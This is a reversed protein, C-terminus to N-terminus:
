PSVMPTAIQNQNPPNEPMPGQYLNPQIPIQPYQSFQSNEQYPNPQPYAQSFQSNPVPMGQVPIIQSNNILSDSQIQIYKPSPGYENEGQQSDELFFILLIINGFPIFCLFYFAGSRGTDHLRRVGSSILPIMLIIECIFIFIILGIITGALDPDVKEDNDHKKNPNTLIMIVLIYFFVFALLCIIISILLTFFWFESRRARGKFTLFKKCGIKIAETFSLPPLSQVFM